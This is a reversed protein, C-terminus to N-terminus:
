PQPSEKGSTRYAAVLELLAGNRLREPDREGGGALKLISRALAERTVERDSNIKLVAWTENFASELVALTEPDYTQGAFEAM